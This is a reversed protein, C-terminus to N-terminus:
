EADAAGGNVTVDHKQADERAATLLWGFSLTIKRGGTKLVQVAVDVLTTLNEHCRPSRM